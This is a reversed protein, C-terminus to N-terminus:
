HRQVLGAFSCGAFVLFGAVGLAGDDAALKLEALLECSAVGGLM